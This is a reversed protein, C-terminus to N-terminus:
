AKSEKRRKGALLASLLLLPIGVVNLLVRYLHLPPRVEQKSQRLVEREMDPPSAGDDVATVIEQAADAKPAPAEHVAVSDTAGDYDGLRLVGTEGALFVPLLNGAVLLVFIVAAAVAPPFWSRGAKGAPQRKQQLQRLVKQRLKPPPAAEPAAKLLALVNQTSVIEERCNSCVALHEEFAQKKTGELMQDLYESLLKKVERCKM